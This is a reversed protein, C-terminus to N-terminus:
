IGEYEEDTDSMLNGNYYCKCDDINLNIEDESFCSSDENKNIGSSIEKLEKMLNVYEGSTIKDKIDYILDVLNMLNHDISM